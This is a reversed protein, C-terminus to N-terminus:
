ENKLSEAPNALAAKVSQFCVAAFAILLAIGGALLFVWWSLSIHYAFGQLWQHMAYWCVPFAILIAIIVLKLFDESLMLTISSVSAGLVKRVGIEKIRKQATYIALGFLGLSAILISLLAALEFLAQFRNQKAYQQQFDDDMFKYNFEYGKFVKSWIGRLVNVVRHPDVDKYRVAVIGAGQGIGLVVPKIQEQLGHQHYDALVGIVVGEKGSTSLKKGLAKEPNGWGFAKISAENIITNEQQDEKSDVAFNHGAVFKLGLTKAYDDDVPIYEVAIGEDETKGEPYAFQGNWGMRGPVAWCASVKLIGPNQLAEGKFAAVNNNRVAWPVRRADIVIVNDKDFGLSQSLMFQM